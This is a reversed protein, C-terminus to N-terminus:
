RWSEWCQSNSCKRAGNGSASANPMLPCKICPNSTAWEEIAQQVYQEDINLEEAVAVIADANATHWIKSSESEDQLVTSCTCDTGGNATCDMANVTEQETQAFTDRQHGFCRGASIRSRKRQEAAIRGDAETPETLLRHTALLRCISATHLRINGWWITKQLYFRPDVHDVMHFGTAIRRAIHTKTHTTAIPLFRKEMPWRHVCVNRLLPHSPFDFPHPESARPPTAETRNIKGIHTTTADIYDWIRLSDGDTHEVSSKTSFSSTTPRWSPFAPCAWLM